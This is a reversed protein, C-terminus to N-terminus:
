KIEATQGNITVINEEAVTSFNEGTIVIETGEHGSLPSIGDVKLTPTALCSFTLSKNKQVGAKVTLVYDGPELQPVTM